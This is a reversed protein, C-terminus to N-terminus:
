PTLDASHLDFQSGSQSVPDSDMSTMRERRSPRILIQPTVTLASLTASQFVGCSDIQQNGELDPTEMYQSATTM